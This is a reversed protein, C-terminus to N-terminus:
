KNACLYKMTFKIITVRQRVTKGLDAVVSAFSAFNMVEIHECLGLGM